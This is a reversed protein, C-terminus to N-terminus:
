AGKGCINLFLGPAPSTMSAINGRRDDVTVGLDSSYGIAGNLGWLFLVSSAASGVLALSAYQTLTNNLTWEAATEGGTTTVWLDFTKSGANEYSLFACRQRNAGLAAFSRQFVSPSRTTSIALDTAGTSGVTATLFRKGGLSATGNVWGSAFVFSDGPNNDFPAYITAQGNPATGSVALNVVPSVASWSAGYDLSRYLRAVSSPYGAAYLLGAVKSSIHLGPWIGEPVTTGLQSDTTISVETWNTGDTTYTVTSPDPPGATPYTSAVAAWNQFGFSSDIFRHGLGASSAFTHQLTATITGFIDGIRYIGTSTVLWGNIAGNVTGTYGPSFADVTFSQVTGSVADPALTSLALRDWLPGGSVSPTQFNTGTDTYYVYGDANFAAIDGINISLGGDIPSIDFSFDLDPFQLDFDPLDPLGNESSQPPTYTTGAVGHTEHRLEIEVTKAGLAPDYSINVSEVTWKDASTFAVARANTTSALTLTVFERYAPDFVDYGDPLSLRVSKPVLTIVNTSGDDYYLGNIYAEHDGTRQNQESQSAVVQRSLTEYGSGQGPANGPANSFVPSGTTTIGEGRVSKYGRRHDREIDASLIDATTFAYTTTVSSRSALPLYNPNEALLLRGLRDCTMDVNIASTIDQTQSAISSVDEASLRSFTFLSRIPPYLFDFYELATTHWFVLYWAAMRITLTKLEQWNAPNNDSVMLQPLAGTLQLMGLPGVAEFTVENEEPTIRISDRILYGCFKIHSRETPANSGYSVQSGGYREDEFYCIFAGDPINTISAESSKPLRFTARWGDAITGSLTDMQVALPLTSSDYVRVPIRKSMAEGNDADEVTLTVHRFGIPFTATITSDTDVGVTITGDGVDALYNLGSGNDPDVPFSDTWDFDITAVSGGSDVFGFWAGGGNAIPPFNDTQDTYTTRSDKDFDENAAVLKDWIRYEDIVDFRDNDELHLTGKSFENVQIVTSSAGGTAVRLLGKLTSTNGDRVLITMGEVVDTFAGTGSYADDFTISTVPYTITAMNVARSFVTTQPITGIYGTFSFRSGRFTTAQSQLNPM